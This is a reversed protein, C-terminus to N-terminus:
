LGKQCEIGMRFDTLESPNRPMHPWLVSSTTSKKRGKPISEEIEIKLLILL